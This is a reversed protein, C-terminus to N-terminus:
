KLVQVWDHGFSSGAGSKETVCVLLNEMKGLGIETPNKDSAIAFFQSIKPSCGSWLRHCVLYELSSVPVGQSSFSM